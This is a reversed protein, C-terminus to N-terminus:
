KSEKQIKNLLYMGNSLMGHDNNLYIAKKSAEAKQIHQLLRDLKKESYVDTYWNTSGHLRLYVIDNITIISRPLSPADISCFSIGVKEIEKIPQKKWWSSDRFEIVYNSDNIINGKNAPRVIDTFFSRIRDMNEQNYKYNPPMQFLWFDIKEIVPELTKRFREWLEVPRKGKLRNYHTISRHVKISFTFDKPSKSQWNKVWSETPFRYFSANIEVSNFGQSIYWNFADPKAKNWAYTYGSTGIRIKPSFM